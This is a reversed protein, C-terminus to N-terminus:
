NVLERRAEHVGSSSCGTLELQRAGSIEPLARRRENRLRPVRKARVKPAFVAAATSHDKCTLVFHSLCIPCTCPILKLTLNVRSGTHGKPAPSYTRSM